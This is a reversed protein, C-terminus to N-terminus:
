KAEIRAAVLTASSEQLLWNLVAGELLSTKIYWLAVSNKQIGDRVWECALKNTLQNIAGKAM